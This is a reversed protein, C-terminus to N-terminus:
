HRWGRLCRQAKIGRAVFRRRWTDSLQSREPVMLLRDIALGGGPSQSARLEASGDDKGKGIGAHLKASHLAVLAGKAKAIRHLWAPGM